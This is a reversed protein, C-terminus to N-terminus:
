SVAAFCLFGPLVAVLLSDTVDWVGGLGPLWNGSDKASCDRKVMSEALDGILGAIALLPGLVVPMAAPLIGTAPSAALGSDSSPNAFAPFLFECCGWAVLTAMSIGGILGEWTKGPSLKPILKRRGLSRGAFYAGADASKTTAIITLLAATGWNGEGLTRTAVMLSMPLGVAIAVLVGLGIRLTATEVTTVSGENADKGRHSSPEFRQMEVLWLTVVVGLCSAIVFGFQGVPCGIPYSALGVAFAIANWVSPIIASGAILATGVC